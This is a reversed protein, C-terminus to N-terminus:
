SCDEGVDHIVWNGHSSMTFSQWASITPLDPTPAHSGIIGSLHVMQCKTTTHDFTPYRPLIFASSLYTIRALWILWWWCFSIRLQPVHDSSEAWTYWRVKRQRTALTGKKTRWKVTKYFDCNQPIDNFKLWWIKNHRLGRSDQNKRGSWDDNDEGAFPSGTSFGDTSEFIWLFWHHRLWRSKTAGSNRLM